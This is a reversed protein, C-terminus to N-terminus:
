VMKGLASANDLAIKIQQFFMMHLLYRVSLNGSVNEWKRFGISAICAEHGLIFYNYYKSTIEKRSM